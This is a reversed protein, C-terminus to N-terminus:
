APSAAAPGVYGLYEPAFPLPKEGVELEGEVGRAVRDEGAAKARDALLTESFQPSAQAVPELM